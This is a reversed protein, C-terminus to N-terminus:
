HHRAADDGAHEDQNENLAHIYPFSEAYHDCAKMRLVAGERREHASAADYGHHLDYAYNDYGGAIGADEPADAEEGTHLAANVQQCLLNGDEARDGRRSEHGHHDGAILSEADHECSLEALM